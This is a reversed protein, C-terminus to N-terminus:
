QVVKPGPRERNAKESKERERQLEGRAVKLCDAKVYTGRAFVEVARSKEEATYTMADIACVVVVFIDIAGILLAIFFGCFLFAELKM